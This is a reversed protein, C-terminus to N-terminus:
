VLSNDHINKRYTYSEEPTMEATARTSSSTSNDIYKNWEESTKNIIKLGDEKSYNRAPTIVMDHKLIKRLHSVRAQLEQQNKKLLQIKETMVEMEQATELLSEFIGDITQLLDNKDVFNM